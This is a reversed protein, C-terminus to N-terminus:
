NTNYRNTQKSKKRVGTPISYFSPRGERWTSADVVKQAPCSRPSANKVGVCSRGKEKKRKGERPQNICIIALPCSSLPLPFAHPRSLRSRQPSLLRRAHMHAHKHTSQGPVETFILIRGQFGARSKFSPPITFAAPPFASPRRCDRRNLVQVVYVSTRGGQALKDAATSFPPHHISLATQAHTSLYTNNYQLQKQTALSEGNQVSCNVWHHALVRSAGQVHCFPLVGARTPKAPWAMRHLRGDPFPAALGPM